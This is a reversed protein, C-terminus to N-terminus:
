KSFAPSPENCSTEPAEPEEMGAADRPETRAETESPEALYDAHVGKGCGARSGHWLPFHDALFERGNPTMRETGAQDYIPM